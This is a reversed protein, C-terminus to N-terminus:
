FRYRGRLTVPISWRSGDDAGAAFAGDARNLEGAYRLGTEIGVTTRNFLPTEVGILGAGTPVWGSEYLRTTAGPVGQSTVTVDIDDVRSAGLRGEVYPRYGFSQGLVRPQFYQRLGAELTISEYDSPTLQLNGGGSAGTFNGITNRNGNASTYGLTGTLKRNPSLAYSTGISGHIAADYADEIDIGTAAGGILGPLAVASGDFLDGGVEGDIGFGGELNWKSLQGGGACCAAGPNYVGASTSQGYPAQIKNNNHGFINLVSCGSLAMSSVGIALITITRM